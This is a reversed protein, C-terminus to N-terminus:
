LYLQECVHDRFIKRLEDSYFRHYNHEICPLNVRYIAQCDQITNNKILDTLWNIKEILPLDKDWPLDFGLRTLAQKTGPNGLTLLMCQSRIAKYTKETLFIVDDQNSSEGNINFVANYAPHQNDWIPVDEIDDNESVGPSRFPVDALLDVSRNLFRDLDAPINNYNSLQNNYNLCEVGVIDHSGFYFKANQYFWLRHFRAQRSLYSFRFKKDLNKQYDKELLQGALFVPFYVFNTLKRSYLMNLDFSLIKVKGDFQNQVKNLYGLSRNSFDVDIPNRDVSLLITRSDQDLMNTLMRVDQDYNWSISYESAIQFQQKIKQQDFGLIQFLEYYDDTM